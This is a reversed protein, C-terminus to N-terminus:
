FTKNIHDSDNTELNHIYVIAIRMIAYLIHTECRIKDCLFFCTCIHLLLRYIKTYKFGISNLANLKLKVM